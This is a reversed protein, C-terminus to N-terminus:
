AGVEKLKEQVPIGAVLPLTFWISTGETVDLDLWIRGGHYEVIKKVIALGIGTGEYADRGHLRQFIVFVKDAFEAEIGIGNDRVNIRWEEEDREATVTVVPPVDPRRFKLSNGILNVFLTTLLPEEGEVTPLDTWTIRGDEGTRVELQSRVETLVRDLDVDTFGATLRGIRSFALLDNILRQMRQAGDVAFAIYQDAREDLQGAYRRQLLQCFSAVKRLPEQLDHSAVYAFQELDRNSRTLEEAQIKLQENVWEIQRRAERVETLEAAIQRRMGDVNDALERLEPSGSSTIHKDFDGDAVERVQTALDTVPRSVMRDLLLLLAVGAIVIIAAAAIQIAVMRRSTEKAQAASRDRLVGIDTQMKQISSRLADFEATSGAEVLAQGAEPGQTRVADVIPEAVNRHWADIRQRVHALDARITDDLPGSRLYGDIQATIEQEDAIGDRYPQLNVERGTIAYGRIGTEQNLVATSLREGAARMPTARSVVDDLQRSNGAATLAAVVGLGALLLGVTVCLALVRGRLTWASVRLLNM